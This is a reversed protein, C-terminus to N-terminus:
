KKDDGRKYSKAKIMDENKLRVFKNNLTIFMNMLDQDYNLIWGKVDEPLSKIKEVLEKDREYDAIDRSFFEEESSGCVEIIKLLVELSPLFDQKSELRNIYSPNMGIAYSLAKQTLKARVRIYGIRNVIEKRDM